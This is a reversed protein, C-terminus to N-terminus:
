SEGKGSLCLTMGERAFVCHPDLKQASQEMEELETDTRNWDHHSICVLAAGSAKRIETGQNWISHGFGKYRIYEEETYMGDFIILDSGVSFKILEEKFSPTLECDLGYVMAAAERQLRFNMTEDPHNTRISTVSVGDSLLISDGPLIDHCIIDAMAHELSVPWFPPSFLKDLNERLPTGDKGRGYLHITWGAKFVLPFFPLGCIHDLHLHSLFIHLINSSDESRSLLEKGLGCIGTGCDFVAIENEWEVSVCSTNGGFEMRDSFPAAMSGRTGWFKVKLGSGM